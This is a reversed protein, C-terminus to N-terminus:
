PYITRQWLPFPSLHKTEKQHNSRKGQINYKERVSPAHDSAQHRPRPTRPGPAPELPLKASCGGPAGVAASCRQVVVLPAPCWQLAAVGACWRRCPAPHVTDAGPCDPSQLSVMPTFRSRRQDAPMVIFGCQMSFPSHLISMKWILIIILETHAQSSPWKGSLFIQYFCLHLLLVAVNRRKSKFTFFTTGITVNRDQNMKSQWLFFM